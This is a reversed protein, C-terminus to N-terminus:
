RIQPHWVGAAEKDYLIAGWGSKSADTEIQVEIKATDLPAGNWGDLAELWWHLDKETPPDIIIMNDWSRRTKLVRFVNRLLLKSPVIAKTMSICQGMVRALSRASVRKQKLCYRICRKLKQM